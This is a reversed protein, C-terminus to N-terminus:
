ASAVYGYRSSGGEMTGWRYVRTDDVPLNLDIRPRCVGTGDALDRHSEELARVVDPMTLVAAAIDNDLLLM